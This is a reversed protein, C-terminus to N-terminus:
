QTLNSGVQATFPELVRDGQIGGVQIWFGGPSYVDTSATRAGPEGALGSWGTSNPLDMATDGIAIGAPECSLWGVVRVLWDSM